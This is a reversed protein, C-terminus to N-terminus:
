CRGQFPIVLWGNLKGANKKIMLEIGYAKGNTNIVETELHENLLINAGSKFDLVQKMTKYYVEVSTEISNGRFDHYYGVSVQHGLQPKIYTDSLKWIDTPSIAATNSLLHLYQRLSNYSAKVASRDSLSYRVAARLEPGHYTKIVQGASYSVTDTITATSRPLGEIYQFVDRPGIYQFISYRIGGEVSLRSTVNFKDSIYLANELGKEKPTSQAVVLSQNVRHNM